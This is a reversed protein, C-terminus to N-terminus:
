IINCKRNTGICWISPKDNIKVDTRPTNGKGTSSSTDSTVGSEATPTTTLSVPAASRKGRSLIKSAGNQGSLTSETSSMDAESNEATPVTTTISSSTNTEPASFSLTISPTSSSTVPSPLSSSIQHLTESSPSQPQSLPSSSTDVGSGSSNSGISSAGSGGRSSGQKNDTGQNQDIKKNEDTEHNVPVGNLKGEGSKGTGTNDKTDRAANNIDKPADNRSNKVSPPTGVGSRQNVSGKKQIQAKPGPPSNDVNEIKKPANNTSKEGSRGLGGGISGEKPNPSQPQNTIDSSPNTKSGIGVNDKNGRAGSNQVSPATDTENRQNVSGKEQSQPKPGPLSNNVHDTKKPTNDKPKVGSKGSGGSEGNANGKESGSGKQENKSNGTENQHSLGGTQPKQLSTDKKQPPQSPLQRPKPLAPAPSPKLQKQEPTKQPIVPQSPEPKTSPPKTPAQQAPIKVPINEPTKIPTQQTDGLKTSTSQAPELKTIPKTTKPTSPTTSEGSTKSTGPTTSPLNKLSKESPSQPSTSSLAAKQQQARKPLPQESQPQENQKETASNSRESTQQNGKKESKDSESPSQEKQTDQSTNKQELELYKSHLKVCGSTMVDDIELSEDVFNDSWNPIKLEILPLTSFNIIM